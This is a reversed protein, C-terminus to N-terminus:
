PNPFYDNELEILGTALVDLDSSAAYNNVGIGKVALDLRSLLDTIRQRDESKLLSELKKLTKGTDKLALRAKDPDEQALALQATAIDARASLLAVHLDAQDLEVQLDQNETELPSIQEINGELEVVQQKVQDVEVLSQDLKQRLPIYLTFIVLLAGLGAVVLFGLLWRVSRQLFSKPRSEPKPAKVKAEPPPASQPEVGEKKIEEM